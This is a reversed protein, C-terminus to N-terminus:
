WLGPKDYSAGGRKPLTCAQPLGHWGLLVGYGKGQFLGVALAAVSMKELWDAVRRVMSIEVEIYASGRVTDIFLRSNEAQKLWLCCASYTGCLYLRVM